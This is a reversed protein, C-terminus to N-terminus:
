DALGTRTPWSRNGLFPRTALAYIGFVALPALLPLWPLQLTFSTAVIGALTFCVAATMTPQTATVVGAPAGVAHRLVLYVAACLGSLTAFIPSPDSLVIASMTLLVAFTAAPRFQLGVLMAIVALAAAVFALGHAQVEAAAVMVLGFATSLARKGPQATLTM